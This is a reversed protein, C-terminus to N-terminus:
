PVARVNIGLGDCFAVAQQEKGMLGREQEMQFPSLERTIRKNGKFFYANSFRGNVDWERMEQLQKSSYGLFGLVTSMADKISQLNQHEKIPNFVDRGQLENMQDVKWQKVKAKYIACATRPDDMQGASASGAFIVLAAVLGLRMSHLMATDESKAM